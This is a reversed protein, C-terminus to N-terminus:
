MNTLGPKGLRQWDETRGCDSLAVLHLDNLSKDSRLAEAVAYGGIEGPLGFDSIVIDPWKAKAVAV